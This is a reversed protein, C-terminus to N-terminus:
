KITYTYGFVLDSFDAQGFNARITAGLFVNSRPSKSPDVFYYNLGISAPFWKKLLYDTRGRHSFVTYFDNFFPKHLNIGGELNMALHGILFEAGLLLYVNSSYYTVRDIYGPLQNSEIYNKFQQYYRYSIGTRVRIFQRYIIGGSITLSNVPRKTKDDAGLTPGLEHVGLGTFVTMFYHRKRDQVEETPEEPLRSPKVRASVSLVMSNLGFNPLQIHGNSSHLVGFGIRYDVKKAEYFNRYMLAQFHWTLKSGISINAPNTIDDHSTTFYSFGLNLRFKYKKLFNFPNFEIYPTLSFEYGYLSKNGTTSLLLSVGTVPYKYLSSWKKGKSESGIHLAVGSRFGVKPYNLYNPVIRGFLVEPEFYVPHDTTKEQGAVPLITIILLLILLYKM